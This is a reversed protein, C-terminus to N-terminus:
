WVGAQSPTQVTTRDKALGSCGIVAKSSSLYNKTVLKATYSIAFRM